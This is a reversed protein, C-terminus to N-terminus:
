KQVLFQLKESSLSELKLFFGQPKSVGVNEPKTALVLIKTALFKWGKLSLINERFPALVAHIVPKAHIYWNAGKKRYYCPFHTFSIRNKM